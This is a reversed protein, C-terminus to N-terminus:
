ALAETLATAMGPVTSLERIAADSFAEGSRAEYKVERTEKTGDERSWLIDGTPGESTGAEAGQPLYADCDNVSVATQSSFYGHM